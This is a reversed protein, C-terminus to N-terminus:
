DNPTIVVSEVLPEKTNSCCTGLSNQPRGAVATSSSLPPAFDPGATGALEHQILFRPLIRARGSSESKCLGDIAAWIDFFHGSGILKYHTLFAQRFRTNFLPHGPGLYKDDTTFPKGGRPILWVGTRCSEMYRITADPIAIGGGFDIDVMQASDITYPQGDLVTQFRYWTVPDEMDNAYGIEIGRSPFRLEVDHIEAIIQHATPAFRITNWLLMSSTISYFLFTAALPAAYSAVSIATRESAIEKELWLYSHIVPIILPLLQYSSSGVKAAPVCALLIAGATALTYIKLPRSLRRGARMLEYVAILLPVLFLIAYQLNKLLTSLSFAHRRALDLIALQNALSVNPLLFPMPLLLLGLAIGAAAIRWGRWVIILAIVPITYILATAKLNPLAACTIGSIIILVTSPTELVAWVFGSVLLVLFPETRLMFPYPSFRTLVLSVFGLVIVSIVPRVYHRCIRYTLLLSLMLALFGPLKASFLSDGLLYYFPVRVLYTVPGYVDIHRAASDLSPYIPLGDKALRGISAISAEGDEALVPLVTYIAAVLILYSISLAGLWVSVRAPPFHERKVVRFVLLALLFIALPSSALLRYGSLGALIEHLHM